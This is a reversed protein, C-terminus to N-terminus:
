IEVSSACCSGMGLKERDGVHLLLGVGSGRWWCCAVFRYSGSDWDWVSCWHYGAGHPPPADAERRPWPEMQGVLRLSSLGPPATASGLIILPPASKEKMGKEKKKRM